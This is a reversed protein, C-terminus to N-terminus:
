YVDNMGEEEDRAKNGEGVCPGDGVKKGEGVCPGYARSCLTYYVFNILSLITLICYYGKNINSSVWSETGESTINDVISFIFSALRNRISIGVGTLASAISSM